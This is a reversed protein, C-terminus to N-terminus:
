DARMQVLVKGTTPDSIKISSSFYFGVQENPRKKPQQDTANTNPEPKQSNNM